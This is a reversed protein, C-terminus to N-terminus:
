EWASWYEKGNAGVGTPDIQYFCRIVETVNLVGGRPLGSAEFIQDSNAAFTLCEFMKRCSSFMLQIERDTGMWEYDLFVVPCDGDTGQARM